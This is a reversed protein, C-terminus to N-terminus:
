TRGQVLFHSVGAVVWRAPRGAARRLRLDDHSVVLGRPTAIRQEPAAAQHSVLLCVM